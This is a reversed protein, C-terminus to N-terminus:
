PTDDGAQNETTDVRVEASAGVRLEPVPDLVRIRVAFRQTVKVWNGTANEPPLLSFAAGSAPSLGEVRGEFDREPVADVSISAPQGPRIRPLDTEKFNADIWVDRSEVLAFLPSGADVFSGPRLDFDGATGNAPATIRTHRLDLEAKALTAEAAKIAANDDGLAGRTAKAAVLESRASNLAALADLKDQEASDGLDQSASGKAVLAAIRKAHREAEAANARASALQAQAADVRADAAALSEKAEQLRAEAQRVALEFPAPDITLLLEGAEVAQNNHILVSQIPGSVQAAMHVVHRGLYADNTSPHAASWIHYWWGAGALALVVPVGILMSRLKMAVAEKQV